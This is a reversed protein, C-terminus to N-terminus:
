SRPSCKYPSTLSCDIPSVGGAGHGIGGPSGVMVDTDQQCELVLAEALADVLAEFIDNPLTRVVQTPSERTEVNAAQSQRMARSVDRECTM